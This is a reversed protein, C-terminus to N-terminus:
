QTPWDTQEYGDVMLLVLYMVQISNNQGHSPFFTAGFLHAFLQQMVHCGDYRLVMSSGCPGVVNGQFTRTLEKVKHRVMNDGSMLFYGSKITLFLNKVNEGYLYGLKLVDYSKVM